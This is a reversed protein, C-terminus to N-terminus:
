GSGTSSGGMLSSISKLWKRPSKMSRIGKGRVRPAGLRLQRVVDRVRNVIGTAFESEHIKEEIDEADAPELVGDMYALLTRLTLRM